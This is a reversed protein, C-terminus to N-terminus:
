CALRAARLVMHPARAPVGALGRKALRTLHLTDMFLKSFWYLGERAARSAQIARVTYRGALARGARAM